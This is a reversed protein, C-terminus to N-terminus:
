RPRSPPRRRFPGPRRAREWGAEMEAREMQSVATASWRPRPEKRPCRREDRMSRDRNPTKSPAEASTSPWRDAAPQPRPRRARRRSGPMRGCRMGLGAARSTQRAFVPQARARSSGGSRTPRATRWRRGRVAGRAVVRNAARAPRLIRKHPATTGDPSRTAPRDSESSHRAPSRDRRREVAPPDVNTGAPTISTPQWHGPASAGAPPM